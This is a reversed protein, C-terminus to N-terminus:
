GCFRTIYKIHIHFFLQAQQGYAMIVRLYEIRQGISFLDYQALAGWFGNLRQIASM